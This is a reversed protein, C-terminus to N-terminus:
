SAAPMSSEVNPPSPMTVVDIPSPSSSAQATIWCVSPLSTTAPRAVVLVEGVTRDREDAIQAVAIRVGVEAATVALHLRVDGPEQEVTRERQDLLLVALEHDGAVTVGVDHHHAVVRATRGVARKAAAVADDRRRDARDADRLRQELLRGIVLEDDGAARAVVDHEDAVPRVAGRVRREVAGADDRRRDPDAVRLRPPDHLLGRVALEDDRADASAGEAMVLERERAVVEVAIEVHGVEPGFPM